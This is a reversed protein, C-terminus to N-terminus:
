CFASLFGRGPDKYVSSNYDVPAFTHLHGLADTWKLGFNGLHQWVSASPFATRPDPVPFDTLFDAPPVPANNPNGRNYKAVWLTPVVIDFPRALNGGLLQNTVWAAHGPRTYLGAGYNRDVVARSWGRYYDLWHPNHTTVEIDFYIITNLPLHAAQAQTVAEEGDSAGNQWLSSQQTTANGSNQGVISALTPSNPQKGTYVPAVGWGMAKIELYHTHWVFRPDLPRRLHPFPLYFGCWYLETNDWISQMKDTGPYTGTDFGAFIM